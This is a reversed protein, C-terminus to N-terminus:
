LTVVEDDGTFKNMVGICIFVLVMLVLSLAAGLNPNYATKFQSEVVDGILTTGTSGLKQSIYFTSVAPVFVMTIGSVIGPISLPLTVKRFVQAGDCGLDQAAEVLRPDIKLIVTYLPMIMYPLYNYVM